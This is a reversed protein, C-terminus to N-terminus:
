NDWKLVTAVTYCGQLFRTVGESAALGKHGLLLAYEVPMGPPTPMAEM